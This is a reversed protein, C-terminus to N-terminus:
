RGKVGFMHKFNHEIRKIMYEQIDKQVEDQSRNMPMQPVALGVVRALPTNHPPSGAGPKRVFTARNLDPASLNRFPPNGGQDSMATPLTSRHDKVISATIKYRKGARIGKWGKRGGRAPFVKGGIIHKKGEIPISCAIEGAGGGMRPRKIDSAVVGKKIHYKKPVDTSVISKVKKGTESVVRREFAKANEETMLPRLQNLKAQVDSVDVTFVSNRGAMGRRRGLFLKHAVITPDNGVAESVLM